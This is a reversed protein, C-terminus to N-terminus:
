FVANVGLGIWNGRRIPQGLQSFYQNVTSGPEADGADGKNWTYHLMIKLNRESLHWNIGADYTYEKGSSAGVSKADAQGAADLAGNFQVAMFVPEIFFKRGLILNYGARIHGTYSPYVFERVTNDPLPRSGRRRMSNWEGDLNLPGWNFLWDVAATNSELFLDTQGQYSGGLGISFGKRKGFYNIDYGIKYTSMEPDGLYFVARGALLPAFKRGTSNGNDATNLPNFIGLNYNLGLKKSKSLFLGGLNIGAARGPGAGTLHKRIYTQSMAKEMSSAAWGSTISERSLQPRFYGGVLNFAESGPKIRWQFFADWIGFDPIDKNNAGGALSTQVDRGILDYAGVITFQLNDYPQARFGLRMRRLLVNFRDDVREYRGTEKDYAEHGMSYNSWVQTMMFPHIKFDEKKKLWKDFSTQGMGMGGFLLALPLLVFIRYNM